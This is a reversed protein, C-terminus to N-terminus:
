RASASCSKSSVEKESNFSRQTVILTAATTVSTVPAAMCSSNWTASGLEVGQSRPAAMQEMPRSATAWPSRRVLRVSRTSTM